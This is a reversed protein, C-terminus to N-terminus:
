KLFSLLLNVKIDVKMCGECKKLQTTEGDLHCLWCIKKPDLDVQVGDQDGPAAEFHNEANVKELDYNTQDELDEPM